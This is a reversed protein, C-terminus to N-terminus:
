LRYVRESLPPKRSRVVLLADIEQSPLLERIAALRLRVPNTM